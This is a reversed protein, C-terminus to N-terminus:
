KSGSFGIRLTKGPCPAGFTIVETGSINRGSGTVTGTVRGSYDHMFEALSPGHTELPLSIVGGGTASFSGDPSMGGGYNRTAGREEISFTFGGGDPRGSLRITGSTGPTVPFECDDGVRFGEVVGVRAADDM